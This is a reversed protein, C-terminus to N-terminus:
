LKIAESQVNNSVKLKRYGGILENNNMAYNTVRSMDPIYTVNPRYTEGMTYLATKSSSLRLKFGMFYVLDWFTWLRCKLRIYLGSRQLLWKNLDLLTVM